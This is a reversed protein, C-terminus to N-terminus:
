PIDIEVTAPTTGAAGCFYGMQNLVRTLTKPMVQCSEDDALAVEYAIRLENFETGAAGDLCNSPIDGTIDLRWKCTGMMSGDDALTLVISFAREEEVESFTLTCTYSGYYSWKCDGEATLVYAGNIVSCECGGCFGGAARDQLNMATLDVVYQEAAPFAPDCCDCPPGDGTDCTCTPCTPRSVSYLYSYDYSTWDWVGSIVEMGSKLGSQHATVGFASVCDGDYSLTLRGGARPPTTYGVQCVFFDVTVNSTGPAETQRCELTVTFTDANIDSAQVEVIDWEAVTGTLEIGGEPQPVLQDAVFNSNVPTFGPIALTFTQVVVSEGADREAVAGITIDNIISGGPIFFGFTDGDLLGTEEEDATFTYSANLTDDATINEPNTWLGGGGNEGRGPLRIAYSDIQTQDAGPRWSFCITPRSTPTITVADGLWREIGKIVHGLRISGSGAAYSIEGFLYNDADYYALRFRLTATASATYPFTEVRVASGASTAATNLIITGSTGTHTLLGGSTSWSGAVQTWLSLAGDFTDTAIVCECCPCNQGRYKM